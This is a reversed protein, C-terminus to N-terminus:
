TEPQTTVPRGAVRSVGDGCGVETSTLLKGATCGTLKGVGTGTRSTLVFGGAVDVATMVQPGPEEPDGVVAPDDGSGEGGASPEVGEGEGEDDGAATGHEKRAESSRPCANPRHNNRPARTISPTNAM